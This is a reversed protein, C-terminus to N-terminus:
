FIIEIPQGPHFRAAEAAPLRAEILFVLKDRRDRSYIVPPTYEPRDSIFSVTADAQPAAGGSRVRVTAGAHLKEAEPASLYFRAKLKDPPLIAVLPRGAPVWDGPEFYTEHVLGACPASVRKQELRWRAQELQKQQQAHALRAQDWESKAIVDKGALNQRRDAELRSLEEAAALQAVQLQEEDTDLAALLDGAHIAQGRTVPRELLRGGFPSAPYVYDAEIYGQTPHPGHQGCGAALSILLLPLICRRPNM